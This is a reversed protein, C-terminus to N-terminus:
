RVIRNHRVPTLLSLTLLATTCVRGGDESWPGCPNWSGAANGDTRQNKMTAQQLKSFWETWHRGGVQWLAMSGYYWYVEDVAGARPDWIPSKSLILDAAARMVPVQKPDQGLQFRCWLSAATLAEGKEVPFRVRHDGAYRASPEGVKYYGHRGTPDSISDFWTTALAFSGPDVELQLFRCDALADVCCATVFNRNGNSRRTYDWVAYPNRYDDLFRAAQQLASKLKPDDDRAAVAALASTSLAHCVLSRAHNMPSLAGTQMNQQGLLWTVAQQLHSSYPGDQRTSGDGAMALVVLATAGVDHTADGPGDCPAGDKDHKMFNDIDWRGDADQHKGLWTLAAEVSSAVAAPLRARRARSQSAAAQRKDASGEVPEAAAPKAAPRWLEGLWRQVFRERIAGPDAPDLKGVITLNRIPVPSSSRVGLIISGGTCNGISKLEATQRGDLEVRATKQGDNVFRLRHPEKSTVGGSRGKSDRLVSTQDNIHLQGGATVRLYRGPAVCCLLAVGSNEEPLQFEFSIEHPGVLPMAWQLFGSGIAAHVTGNPQVCTPGDYAVRSEDTWQIPAADTPSFDATPATAPDPYTIKVRGDPLSEVKGRIGLAEADDLAFAREALARALQEIAAKRRQWLPAGDSTADRLRVLAALAATRETPMALQQLWGLEAAALGYSADIVTAFEAELEQRWSYEKGQITAKAAATDGALWQLCAAKWADGFQFAKTKKGLALLTAPRMAVRQEGTKTKLVVADGDQRVFKGRTGAVDVDGKAQQLDGVLQDRLALLDQLRKRERQLSQQEAAAPAQDPLAALAERFKGDAALRRAGAIRDPADEPLWALTKADFDAPARLPTKGAAVAAPAFGLQSAIIAGLWTRFETDLAAVAEPTALAFATQFTALGGAGTQVAKFYRLFGDRYKADHAEHLFRVLLESQAYFTGLAQDRRVAAGAQKQIAAHVQAYTEHVVLDALPLLTRRGIPDQQVEFLWHVHEERMPPSELSAVMNTHASRYEALGENFWMPKPMEGTSSFAHQMAHVFEHLLSDREGHSDGSGFGARYTVALRLTPNYHALSQHLSPEKTARAYDDYLGRSGLVAIAFHSADPRQTLASPQCYTTEFLTRLRNLFPLVPNIVSRDYRKEDQKLAAQLLFLYPPQSADVTFTIDKFFGHSQMRKALEAAPDAPPPEQAGLPIALLLSLTTARIPM